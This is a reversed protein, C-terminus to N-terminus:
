YLFWNFEYKLMISFALMVVVLM